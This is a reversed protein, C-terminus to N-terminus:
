YFNAPPRLITDNRDVAARLREDERKMRELWDMGPTAILSPDAPLVPDPGAAMAAVAGQLCVDTQEIAGQVAKDHLISPAQLSLIHM